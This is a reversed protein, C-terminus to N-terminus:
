QLVEKLEPRYESIFDNFNHQRFLCGIAFKIETDAEMLSKLLNKETKTLFATAKELELLRIMASASYEPCLSKAYSFLKLKQSATASKFFKDLSNDLSFTTSYYSQLISGFSDRADYKKNFSDVLRKIESSDSKSFLVKQAEYNHLDIYILKDQRFLMRFTFSNWEKDQYAISSQYINDYIYRWTGGPAKHTKAIHFPMLSDILKTSMGLKFNDAYMILSDKQSFGDQGPLLLYLFLFYKWIVRNHTTANTM